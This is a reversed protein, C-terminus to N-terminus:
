PITEVLARVTRKTKRKSRESFNTDVYGGPSDWVGSSALYM